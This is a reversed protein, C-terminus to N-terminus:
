YNKFSIENARGVSNFRVYMTLPEEESINENCAPAPEIFYILYKQSRNSLEQRDAKGLTAQVEQQSFGALHQPLQLIQEKMKIREGRCGQPDEQFTIADFNEIDAAQQCQSFIILLSIILSVKKM